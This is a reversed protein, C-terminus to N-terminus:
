STGTCYTYGLYSENTNICSAIKNRNAKINISDFYKVLSTISPFNYIVGTVDQKVYISKSNKLSFEKKGGRLSAPPTFLISYKLASVLNRPRPYGSCKNIVLFAFSSKISLKSWWSRFVKKWKILFVTGWHVVALYYLCKDRWISM